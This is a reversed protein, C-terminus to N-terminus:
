LAPEFLPNVPRFESPALMSFALKDNGLMEPPLEKSTTSENNIQGQLTTAGNRIKTVATSPSDAGTATIIGLVGLVALGGAAAVLAFKEGKEILLKQLNFKAM